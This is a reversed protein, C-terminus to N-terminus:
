SDVTTEASPLVLGPLRSNGDKRLGAYIQLDITRSQGASDLPRVPQTSRISKYVIGGIVLAALTLSCAAVLWVPRTGVQASREGAVSNVIRRLEPTAFYRQRFFRRDVRDLRGELYDEILRREAGKIRQFFDRDVFYREEICSAEEENLMGLLYKTVDEAQIHESNM